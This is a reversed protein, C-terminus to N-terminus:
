SDFSPQTCYCCYLGICCCTILQSSTLLTHGVYTSSGSMSKQCHKARAKRNLRRITLPVTNPPTMSDPEVLLKALHSSTRVLICPKIFANFWRLRRTCRCTQLIACHTFSCRESVANRDFEHLLSWITFFFQLLCWIMFVSFGLGRRNVNTLTQWVCTKSPM